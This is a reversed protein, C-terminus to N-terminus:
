KGRRGVGMMQDILWIRLEPGTFVYLEVESVAAKLITDPRLNWGKKDMIKMGLERAMREQNLKLVNAKHLKAEEFGTAVSAGFIISDMDLESM